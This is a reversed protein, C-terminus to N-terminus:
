AGRRAASTESSTAEKLAKAQMHELTHENILSGVVANTSHLRLLREMVRELAHWSRAREYHEKAALYELRAKEQALLWSAVGSRALSELPGLSLVGRRSQFGRRLVGKLLRYIM